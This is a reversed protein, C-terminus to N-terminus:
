HSYVSFILLFLVIKQFSSLLLSFHISEYVPQDEDSKDNQHSIDDKGTQDHEKFASIGGTCPRPKQHKHKNRNQPEKHIHNEPSVASPLFHEQLLLLIVTRYIMAIGLRYSLVSLLLGLYAILLLQQFRAIHCIQGMHMHVAAAPHCKIIFNVIKVIPSIFKIRQDFIDPIRFLM